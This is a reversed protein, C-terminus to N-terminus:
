NTKAQIFNKKDHKERIQVNWSGLENLSVYDAHFTAFIEITCEIIRIKTILVACFSFVCNM